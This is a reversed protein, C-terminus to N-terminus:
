MLVKHFYRGKLHEGSCRIPGAYFRAKKILHENEWRRGQPGLAQARLDRRPPGPGWHPGNLVSRAPLRSQRSFAAGTCSFFARARLPHTPGRRGRRPCRGWLPLRSKAKRLSKTACMSPEGRPPAPVADATVSLALPCRSARLQGLASSLFILCNGFFSPKIRTECLIEYSVCDLLLSITAGNQRM